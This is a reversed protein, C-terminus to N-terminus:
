GRLLRFYTKWPGVGQGYYRVLIRAIQALHAHDHTVWTRLLQELTVVGLDPHVAARTLDAPAIDLAQLAGLSAARRFAFEDLVAPPSWGRYARAGNERDFPPFCRDPADSLIVRARPIWNHVEADTVHCVVEFVTWSEPAERYALADAPLSEVLSRLTTPTMGLRSRLETLNLRGSVVPAEGTM